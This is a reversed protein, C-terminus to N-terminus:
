KAHKMSCFPKGIRFISQSFQKLPVSYPYDWEVCQINLQGDDDSIDM